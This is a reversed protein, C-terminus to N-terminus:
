EQVNSLTIYVGEILGDNILFALEYFGFSDSNRKTLKRKGVIDDGVPYTTYYIISIREIPPADEKIEEAGELYRSYDCYDDATTFDVVYCKIGTYQEAITRLTDGVGVGRKTTIGNDEELGYFFEYSNSDEVYQKQIDAITGDDSYFLFEDKNLFNQDNNQCSNTLFLMVILAAIITFRKM